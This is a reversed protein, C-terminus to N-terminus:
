NKNNSHKGLGWAYGFKITECTDFGLCNGTSAWNAAQWTWQVLLLLILLVHFFLGSLVCINAVTRSKVFVAGALLLGAVLFFISNAMSLSGGQADAGDKNCLVFSVLLVIFAVLDIGLVIM